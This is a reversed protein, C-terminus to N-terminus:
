WELRMAGFTLAGSTAANAWLCPAPFTMDDDIVEFFCQAGGM